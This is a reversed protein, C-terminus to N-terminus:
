NEGLFLAHCRRDGCVAHHFHTIHGVDTPCIVSPLFGNQNFAQLYKINFFFYEIVDLKPSPM